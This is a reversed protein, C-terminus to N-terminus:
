LDGVKKAAKKQGAAKLKEEVSKKAAKYQRETLTHFCVDVGNEEVSFQYTRIGGKRLFLLIGMKARDGRSEPFRGSIVKGKVNLLFTDTPKGFPRESILLTPNASSGRSAEDRVMEPLSLKTAVAKEKGLLLRLKRSLPRLYLNNGRYLAIMEVEDPDFAVGVKEEFSPLSLFVNSHEKEVEAGVADM